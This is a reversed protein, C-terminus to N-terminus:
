VFVKVCRGAVTVMFSVSLQVSWWSDIFRNQPRVIMVILSQSNAMERTQRSNILINLSREFVGRGVLTM